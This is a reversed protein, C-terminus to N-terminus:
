CSLCYIKSKEAWENCIENMDYQKIVQVAIYSMWAVLTPLYFYCFIMCGSYASCEYSGTTKENTSSNGDEFGSFDYSEITKNDSFFNGAYIWYGLIVLMLWYM